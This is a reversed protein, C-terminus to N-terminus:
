RPVYQQRARVEVGPRSVAVRIRRTSPLAEGPRPDPQVYVLRYYQRSDRIVLPINKGLDNHDVTLLGGTFSSLQGLTGMHRGAMSAASQEAAMALVPPASQAAQSTPRTSLPSTAVRIAGSSAELGRPDISYIAVNAAAADRLLTRYAARLAPTDEDRPGQPLVRPGESVLVVARRESTGERALVATVRRLVELTTLADSEFQMARHLGIREGSVQLALRESAVRDTSLQQVLERSGTNVIALRDVPSLARIFSLAVERTAKTLRPSIHRDDVVLVYDRRQTLGAPTTLDVFEFSVLAQPEAEDFVRIEDSTLDTVPVGDRTVIASVEVLTVGSRFRPEQAVSVSTASFWAACVALAVRMRLRMLM